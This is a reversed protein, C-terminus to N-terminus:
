RRLELEDAIARAQIRADERVQQRRENEANIREVEPSVVYGGRPEPDWVVQAAEAATLTRGSGAQAPTQYDKRPEGADAPATASPAPASAPAPAEAACGVLLLVLMVRFM